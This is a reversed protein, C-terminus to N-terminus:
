NGPPRAANASAAPPSLVFETIKENLTVFVKNTINPETHRNWAWEFVDRKDSVDLRIFHGDICTKEIYTFEGGRPFLLGAHTTRLTRGEAFHLLLVEVDNPFKLGARRWRAQLVQLVVERSCNAFASAPLISVSFLAATLCMRSDRTDQSFRPTSIAGYGRGIGYLAAFADRPTAAPIIWSATPGRNTACQYVLFPGTLDDPQLTTQLRAGTLLLASDFCNFDSNTSECLGTIPLADILNTISAFQYFGAKARPFHSLDLSLQATRNSALSEFSALARRECGADRLFRMTDALAPGETLVAFRVPAAGLMRAYGMALGALLYLWVSSRM